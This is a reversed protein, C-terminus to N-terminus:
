KSTVLKTNVAELSLVDFFPYPFTRKSKCRFGISEFYKVADRTHYGMMTHAEMSVYKVKKKFLGQNVKTLVFKESGEIDIKLFDICDIRHKTLLSQFTISKVRNKSNENVSAIRFFKISKFGVGTDNNYIARDEVVVKEKLGNLSLNTKLVKLSQKEPEVAILKRPSYKSFAWISFSGINAGLDVITEINENSGLLTPAYYQEFYTETLTYFDVTRPRLFFNDGFVTVEFLDKSLLWKSLNKLYFSFVKKTM